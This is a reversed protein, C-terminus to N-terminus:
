VDQGVYKVMDIPNFGSTQCPIVKPYNGPRMAGRLIWDAQLHLFCVPISPTFPVKAGILEMM